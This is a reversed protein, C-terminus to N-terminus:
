ASPPQAGRMPGEAASALRAELRASRQQAAQPSDLGLAAAIENWTLGCDRANKILLYESEDMERRQGSVCKLVALAQKRERKRLEGDSV